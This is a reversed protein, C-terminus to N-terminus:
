SLFELAKSALDTLGATSISLSPSAKPVADFLNAFADPDIFDLQGGFDHVIRSLSVRCTTEHGGNEGVNYTLEFSEVHGVLEFKGLTFQANFGCTLPINDDRITLSGTGMKYNHSHWARAVDRIKQFWEKFDVQSAAGAIVDKSLFQTQLYFEQGGFRKMEDTLRVTGYVESLNKTLNAETAQGQFNVRIFSPSNIFTNSIRFNTIYVNDIRVRPLDDYVTWSDLNTTTAAKLKRMLFPKDRVFLVPKAAIDNGGVPQYLIDTFFENLSTDCHNQILSWAPEGSSVLAALGLAIPRDKPNMDFSKKFEEITPNSSNTPPGQDEFGFAANSYQVVQNPGPAGFIGNWTGDNYMGVKQVGTIVDMLGSSFPANTDAGSLGLRELLAPPVSPMSLAVEPLGLEGLDKIGNLLDNQNVAGILKLILHVLEYPNFAKTAIKQLEDVSVKQGIAADAGVINAIASLSASAPLSNIIAFMDYRVPMTLCASWERVHVTHRTQLLANGPVITYDPDIDYIQGIFRVLKRPLGAEDNNVSTIIVWTGPFCGDPMHGIMTFVCQADPTAKSRSIRISSLGGAVTTEKGGLSSTSNIAKQKEIEKEVSQVDQKAAIVTLGAAGQKFDSKGPYKSAFPYLEVIWRVRVNQEENRGM